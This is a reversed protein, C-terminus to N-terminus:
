DCTDSRPSRGKERRKEALLEPVSLNRTGPVLYGDPAHLIMVWDSLLHNAVVCHAYVFMETCLPVNQEKAVPGLSSGFAELLTPPQYAVVGSSVFPKAPEAFSGDGDYLFIREVGLRQHHTIWDQLFFPHEKAASSHDYLPKTCGTVPRPHASMGELACLQIPFNLVRTVREQKGPRRATGVIMQEEKAANRDDVAPTAAEHAARMAFQVVLGFRRQGRRLRCRDSPFVCRVVLLGVTSVNAIRPRALEGRMRFYHGGEGEEEEEEEEQEEQGEEEGKMVGEAHLQPNMMGKSRRQPPRCM